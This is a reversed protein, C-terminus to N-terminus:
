AAGTRQLAAKLVFDPDAAEAPTLPAGAALLKRGAMHDATRNLSDIAILRGDRFYFVSFEGSAPDGRTATHDYGRSFGVMQLKVDFQDTWFWPVADYPKDHGALTAAATKAQDVANQVSELRARGGAFRNPHNTCDGAAVIDPDSTRAHADVVIGNDCALGAAEALRINPVIGVGIVVLDAPHRTGDATHVACARGAGVEIREVRAGLAIHVGRDRHLATYYDSIAPAVARPMLRDQAELVTIAKGLTRASAAFELGIFGGGIVVVTEAQDLSARLADADDHTRLYLVGEADAGPVPLTLVRGGTALALKDYAVAGDTTELRKAERDIAEVRVGLRLAIDRNAYYSEQRFPLSDPKTKGTLYGKSLPPRQYPPHPEECLLHIPGEYDESRLSAAIQYGAQGGGVIVIGASM